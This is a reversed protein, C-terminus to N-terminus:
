ATANSISRQISFRLGLEVGHSGFAFDQFNYSVSNGGDDYIADTKYKWHSRRHNYGVYAEFGSVFEYSIGVKSQTVTGYVDEAHRRLGQYRLIKVAGLSSGAYLSIKGAIPYYGYLGYSLSMERVSLVNGAENVTLNASGLVSRVARVASYGPEGKEGLVPSALSSRFEIEHYVGRGLIPWMSSMYLDWGGMSSSYKIHLPNSFSVNHVYGVKCQPAKLLLKSFQSAISGLQASTGLMLGMVSLAVM